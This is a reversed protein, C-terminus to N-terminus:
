GHLLRNYIHRVFSMKMADKCDSTTTLADMSHIDDDSETGAYRYGALRHEDNLLEGAGFKYV